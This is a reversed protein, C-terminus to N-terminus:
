FWLPTDKSFVMLITREPLRKLGRYAAFAMHHRQTDPETGVMENWLSDLVDFREQSTEKRTHIVFSKLEILRDIM